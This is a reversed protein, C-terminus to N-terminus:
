YFCNTKFITCVVYTTLARMQHIISVCVEMWEYEKAVLDDYLRKYEREGYMRKEEGLMAMKTTAEHIFVFNEPVGEPIKKDATNVYGAHTM